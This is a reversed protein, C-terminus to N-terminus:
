ALDVGTRSLTEFCYLFLPAGHHEISEFFEPGVDGNDFQEREAAALKSELQDRHEFLDPRMMRRSFDCAAQAINVDQFLIPLSVFGCHSADQVIEEIQQQHM